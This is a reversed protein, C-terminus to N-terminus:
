RANRLKLNGDIPQLQAPNMKMIASGDTLGISGHVSCRSYVTSPDREDPAASPLEYSVSSGDFQEWSVAPRRATDAPCTLLRPTSLENKMALWDLPLLSTKHENAWMRAALGIQKLNNVCQTAMSKEKARAFPDDEPAVSVQALLAAHEAQLRQNEARLTALEGARARLEAVEARLKLLEERDERRRETEQRDAKSQRREANDRRLDELNATVLQLAANERRVDFLQVTQVGLVILCGLFFLGVAFAPFWRRWFSVVNVHEGSLHEPQPLRIAARLHGKLDPPPAPRPAQRLLSEIQTDNM